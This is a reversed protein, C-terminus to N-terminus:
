SVSTKVGSILRTAVVAPTCYPRSSAVSLAIRTTASCPRDAVNRIDSPTTGPLVPRPYTSLRTMLRPMSNPRSSPMVSGRSGLM